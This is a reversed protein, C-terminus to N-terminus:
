ESLGTLFTDLPARLAVRACIPASTGGPLKLTPSRTIASREPPPYAESTHQPGRM